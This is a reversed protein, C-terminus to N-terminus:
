SKSLSQAAVLAAFTGKANVLESYRGQEVVEGRNVVIILDANQITSLRHALM